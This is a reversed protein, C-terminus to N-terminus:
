YQRLDVESAVGESVYSELSDAYPLQIEPGDEEATHGSSRIWECGCISCIYCEIEVVKATGDSEAYFADGHSMAARVETVTWNREYHLPDRGTVLSVVHTHAPPRHVELDRIGVVRHRM